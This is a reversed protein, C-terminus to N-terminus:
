KFGISERIQELTVQFGEASKVFDKSFGRIADALAHNSQAIILAALIENSPTSLGLESCVLVRLEKLDKKIKEKEETTM